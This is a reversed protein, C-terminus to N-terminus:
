DDGEEDEEFQESMLTDPWDPDKSVKDWLSYSESGKLDPSLKDSM